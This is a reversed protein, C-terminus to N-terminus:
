VCHCSMVCAFHLGGNRCLSCGRLAVQLSVERAPPFALSTGTPGHVSIQCWDSWYPPQFGMPLGGIMMLLWVESRWPSAPISMISLSYGFLKWQDTSLVIYIQWPWFKGFHQDVFFFAFIKNILLIHPQNKISWCFDWYPLDGSHQDVFHRGRNKNILLIEVEFKTSWCFESKEINDRALPSRGGRPLARWIKPLWKFGYGRFEIHILPLIAWWRFGKSPTM